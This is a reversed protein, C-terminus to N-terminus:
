ARRGYSPTEPPAAASRAAARPPFSAPPSFPSSPVASSFKQARSRPSARPSRPARGNPWASRCGARDPGDHLPGGPRSPTDGEGRRRRSRPVKRRPHCRLGLPAERLLRRPRRCERRQRWRDTPFAIWGATMLALSQVEYDGVGLVTLQQDTYQARKRHLLEEPRVLPLRAGEVFYALARAAYDAAAEPPMSREGWAYAFATALIDGSGIRFYSEAAYSQVEVLEDGGEFLRLGGLGDKVVVVQPPTGVERLRIVSERLGVDRRMKEAGPALSLLESENIIVALNGASSGNESFAVGSSQPDYVARDASVIATGEMMGFRLVVDGQVELKTTAKPKQPLLLKQLSDLYHFTLQHKTTRLNSSIGFSRLTEEVDARWEDPVYSHLTVSPSLSSAAVASRLGSGFIRNWDPYLCREAYTGGAVIM